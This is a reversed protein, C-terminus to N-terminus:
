NSHPLKISAPGNKPQEKQTDPLQVKISDELSIILEIYHTLKDKFYDHFDMWKNIDKLMDRYDQLTNKPNIIKETLDTDICNHKIYVDILPKSYDDTSDQLDWKPPEAKNELLYDLGPVFNYTKSEIVPSFKYYSDFKKFIDFHTGLTKLAKIDCERIIRKLACVLARGPEIKPLIQLFRSYPVYSVYTWSYTQYEGYGLSLLYEIQDQKNTYYKSGNAYEPDAYSELYCYDAIRSADIFSTPKFGLSMLYKLKELSDINFYIIDNYEREYPMKEHDQLDRDYSYVKTSINPYNDDDIPFKMEYKEIFQQITEIDENIVKVFMDLKLRDDSGLYEREFEELESM